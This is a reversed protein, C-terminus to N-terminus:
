AAAEMRTTTKMSDDHRVRRAVTGAHMEAARPWQKSSM